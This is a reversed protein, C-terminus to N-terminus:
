TASFNQIQTNSLSLNEHHKEKKENSTAENLIMEYCEHKDEQRMRRHTM